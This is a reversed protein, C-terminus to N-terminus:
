KSKKTSVLSGIYTIYLENTSTEINFNGLTDTVTGKATGITEVVTAGVIPDLTESDVVKGKVSVQAYTSSIYLISLCIALCIRYTKLKKM